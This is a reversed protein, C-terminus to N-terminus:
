ARERCKFVSGVFQHSLLLEYADALAELRPDVRPSWLPRRAGSVTARWTPESVPNLVLGALGLRRFRLALWEQEPADGRLVSDRLLEYDAQAPERVPWVRSM